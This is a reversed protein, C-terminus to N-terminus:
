SQYVLRLKGDVFEVGTAEGNATKLQFNRIADENLGGPFSPKSEMSETRVTPIKKRNPM